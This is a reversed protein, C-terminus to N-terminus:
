VYVLVKLQGVLLSLIEPTQNIIPHWKWLIQMLNMWQLSRLFHFAVTSLGEVMNDSAINVNQVLLM